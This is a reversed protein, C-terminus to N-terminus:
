TKGARGPAPRDLARKRAAGSQRDPVHLLGALRRVLSAEFDHLEGDAYAVQWLMEIMEARETEDFGKNIVRTFEFLQSSRRVAQEALAILERVEADGVGFRSQLIREIARREANGFEGDMVAAEVLLAAAAAEVDDKAAQGAKCAGAGEGRIIAKIKAIMVKGIM